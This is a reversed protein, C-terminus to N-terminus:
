LHVIIDLEGVLLLLEGLLSWYLVQLEHTIDAGHKFTLVGVGFALAFM